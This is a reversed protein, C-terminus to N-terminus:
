FLIQCALMIITHSANKRYTELKSWVVSKNIHHHLEQQVPQIRTENWCNNEFELKYQVWGSPKGFCLQPPGVRLAELESLRLPAQSKKKELMMRVSSASAEPGFIVSQSASHYLSLIDSARLSSPFIPVYLSLLESVIGLQFSNHASTSLIIQENIWEVSM